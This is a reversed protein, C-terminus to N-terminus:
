KTMGRFKPVVTAAFFGQLVDCHGRDTRPYVVKKEKNRYDSLQLNEDIDEEKWKIISMDEILDNILDTDEYGLSVKLMKDTFRIMDEALFTETTKVYIFDSDPKKHYGYSGNICGKWVEAIEWFSDHKEIMDAIDAPITSGNEEIFLVIHAADFTNHILWL